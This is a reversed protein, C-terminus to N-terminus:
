GAVLRLSASRRNPKMFPTGSIVYRNLWGQKDWEWRRHASSRHGQDAHLHATRARWLRRPTGAATPSPTHTHNTHTHTLQQQQRRQHQHHPIYTTTSTSQQDSIFGLLIHVRDRVASCGKNWPCLACLLLSPNQQPKAQSATPTSPLAELPCWVGGGVTLRSLRVRLSQTRRTSGRAVVTDSCGRADVTRSDGPRQPECTVASCGLM